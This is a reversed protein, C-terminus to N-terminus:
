RCALAGRESRDRLRHSAGMAAHHTAETPCATPWLCISPSSSRGGRSEYFAKSRADDLPPLFPRASETGSPVAHDMSPDYKRRFDGVSPGGSAAMGAVLAPCQASTILRVPQWEHHAM